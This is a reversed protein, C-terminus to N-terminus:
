SGSDCCARRELAADTREAPVGFTATDPIAGKM